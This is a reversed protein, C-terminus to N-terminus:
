LPQGMWWFLYALLLIVVFVFVYYKFNEGNGRIIGDDSFDTLSTSVYVQGAPQTDAPDPLNVKEYLQTEANYVSHETLSNYNDWRKVEVQRGALYTAEYEPNGNYHWSQKSLGDKQRGNEYESAQRKQGNEYYSIVQGHYASEDNFTQIQWINGLPYYNKWTGIRKGHNYYQESKLQGNNYWNLEQGHPKDNIYFAQHRLQKNDYFEQVTGNRVHKHLPSEPNQLKTIVFRDKEYDNWHDLIHRMQWPYLQQALAEADFIKEDNHRIHQTITVSPPNVRMNNYAELKHHGDLVFDASWEHEPLVANMVLVWPRAGEAIQREFHRVQDADIEDFPRTAVYRFAGGGNYAWTSTFEVLDYLSEERDFQKCEAKYDRKLQDIQNLKVPTPYETFWAYSVPQNQDNVPEPQPLGARYTLDYEGNPLLSLLPKLVEYLDQERGTFDTNLSDMILDHVKEHEGPAMPMLCLYEAVSGGADPWVLTVPKNIQIYSGADCLGIAIYGTGNTINFNM